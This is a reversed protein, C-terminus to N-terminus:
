LQEFEKNIEEKKKKLFEFITDKLQKEITEGLGIFCVERDRDSIYPHPIYLVDEIKEITKWINVLENAKELTEKKM